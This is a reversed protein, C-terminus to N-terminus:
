TCMWITRMFRDEKVQTFGIAKGDFGVDQLAADMDADSKLFEPGPGDGYYQCEIVAIKGAIRIKMLTEHFNVYPLVSLCLIVDFQNLKPKWAEIDYHNVMARPLNKTKSSAIEVMDADNDWGMVTKAGAHYALLLFDGYGCGVDLINKNRIDVRRTIQKWMEAARVNKLIAVNYTM